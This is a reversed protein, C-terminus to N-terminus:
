GLMVIGGAVTTMASGNVTVTAGKLAATAEGQV